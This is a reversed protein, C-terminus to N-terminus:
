IKIRKKENIFFDVVILILGLLLPWFYLERYEVKMVDEEIKNQIMKNLQDRNMDMEQDAGDNAGVKKIYQEYFSGLGLDGDEASIYIGNASKSLGVLFGEQLGSRVFNGNEDKVGQIVSGGKTGIGITHIRINNESNAKRVLEYIENELTKKAEGTLGEIQTDGGDTIIILDKKKNESFDFQKNLVEDLSPKFQTGGYDNDNIVVSRLAQRFYTYDLTLVCKVSPASTFVVLGIHEGKLKDVLDLIYDKAKELRNPYLDEASMSASVDLMFIIDRATDKVKVKLNKQDEDGAVELDGLKEKKNEEQKDDAGLEDLKGLPRMLSFVLCVFALLILVIKILRKVNSTQDAIKKISEIHAFEKIKKKKWVWSWYFLIGIAFILFIFYANNPNNFESFGFMM